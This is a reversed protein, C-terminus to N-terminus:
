YVSENIDGLEIEEPPFLGDDFSPLDDESISTNTARDSAITCGLFLFLLLLLLLASRM